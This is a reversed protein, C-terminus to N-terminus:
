YYTGKILIYTNGNIDEFVSQGIRVKSIDTAWLAKCITQNTDLTLTILIDGTVKLSKQSVGRTTFSEINGIFMVREELTQICGTNLVILTILLISLSCAILKKM